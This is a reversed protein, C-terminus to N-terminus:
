WSPSIDQPHIKTKEDLIAYGKGIQNLTVIGVPTIFRTVGILHAALYPSSVRQVLAILLM